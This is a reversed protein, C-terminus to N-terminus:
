ARAHRSEHVDLSDRHALKGHKVTRRIEVVQADRRVVPEFRELAVPLPLVANADVVLPAHTKEELIAVRKVDLDDVVVLQLIMMVRATTYGVGPSIRCSSNRRGIPM